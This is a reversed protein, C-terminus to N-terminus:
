QGLVKLLKSHIDDFGGNSFVVIVDGPGALEVVRKIISGTEQEYFAPKGADKLDSVVKEPDLRQDPPLQDMRAVKALVVGDAGAFAKPLVGQFVARRTTNSRPEFVAWLKAGPFKVRLGEITQAIATPHHGFDDVVTVGGAEGRVEQRRRIGAFTQVAQRIEEMPVHYFHAASVAMAANRVNFEGIMPLEFREGFLTFASSDRGYHVDRIQNGANPSFGVEVLPAPCKEALARCNPDDGNLLVMGVSPVIQLLRRFSTMV